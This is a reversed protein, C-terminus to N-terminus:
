AALEGLIHQILFQGRRVAVDHDVRCVARDHSDEVREVAGASFRRCSGDRGGAGCDDGFRVVAVGFSILLMVMFWDGRWTRESNPEAAAIAMMAKTPQSVTSNVILRM